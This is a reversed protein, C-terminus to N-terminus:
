AAPTGSDTPDTTETAAPPPAAATRTSEAPPSNPPPVAPPQEADADEKRRRLLVLVALLATLGISGAAIHRARESTGGPKGSRLETRLAQAASNSPDLELAREVLKLDAVGGKASAQARLALIKGQIRAKDAAAETFREARLYALEAAEPATKAVSEAYELYGAALEAPQEFRPDETVVLDFAKRMGDLDGKARAVRGAEFDNAVAMSRARDFAAFLERATREWSWDRPPKKGVVNEYTDRLQWLSVEGMLAIAQRAAERVVGRESNAFSVIIRAADPDRARGYARLVDALVQPDPIRVAEGPVARGLADLQRAAWRAVKEAPFRRTELLAPVAKDGLRALERQTHIRLFEGFRVYVSILVRTAEVTGIQSLMRSIGIVSILDAFARDQPRGKTVLLTLYDPRASSKDRGDREDDDSERASKRLEGFLRKMAEKDAREAIGNLRHALAPVFRQDIELLERAADERTSADSSTLAKLREDLEQLEKPGPKELELSPATPLSPLTAASAAASSAPASSQARSTQASVLFNLSVAISVLLRWIKSRYVAKFNQNLKM